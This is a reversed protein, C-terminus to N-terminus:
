AVAKAMETVIEFARDLDFEVFDRERLVPKLESDVQSRLDASRRDSVNVPQDGHITLKQRVQAILGEDDIRLKYNRVAYDIDFFDRIAPERRSLAARFKEAIAETKDICRVPLPGVISKSTLPSRLMTRAAGDFVPRLLPERLSVEIKIREEQQGFASRYGITAMYQTSKNAGRLRDIVRFVSVSKTLQSLATKVREVRKSRESRSTDPVVPIAYDLDESLRYLESHVKTLCTGGKFVLDAGATVDLYGLLLTCSYDKEILRPAFGTEAATFRVAEQFLASDERTDIAPPEAKRM